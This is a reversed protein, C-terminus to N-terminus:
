SAETEVVQLHRGSRIKERLERLGLAIQEHEEPTVKAMRADSEAKWAKHEANGARLHPDWGFRHLEPALEYIWRELDNPPLRDKLKLARDNHQTAFDAELTELLRVERYSGPPPLNDRGLERDLALRRWAMTRWLLTRTVRQGKTY